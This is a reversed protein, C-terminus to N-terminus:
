LLIKKKRCNIWKLIKQSRVVWSFVLTKSPVWSVRFNEGDGDGNLLHYFSKVSFRAENDSSWLRDDERDLTLYFKELILLLQGLEPVEPDWLHRRLNLAWAVKGGVM